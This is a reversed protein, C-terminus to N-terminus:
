DTRTALAHAVRHELESDAYTTLDLAVSAHLRQRCATGLRSRLEGLLPNSAILALREFRHSLAAEDLMAVLEDAFRAREKVHPDTHPELQTSAAGKFAHGPRDSELAQGKLRGKPHVFDAIERLANNESDREFCRARTGNAVLVWDLPERRRKSERMTM